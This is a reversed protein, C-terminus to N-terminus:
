SYYKLECYGGSNRIRLNGHGSHLSKTIDFEGPVDVDEIKAPDIGELLIDWLFMKTTCFRMCVITREGRLWQTILGNISFSNIHPSSISLSTAQLRSLQEDFLEAKQYVHLDQVTQVVEYDFFETSPAGTIEISFTNRGVYPLLKHIISSDSTVLKFREALLTSTSFMKLAHAVGPTLFHLIIELFQVNLFDTFHFLIEIATFEYDQDYHVSRAGSRQVICGGMSDPFFNFKYEEYSGPINRLVILCMNNVPFVANARKAELQIREMKIRAKSALLFSERSLLMFRMLSRFPLYQLIKVKLEAPLDRWM